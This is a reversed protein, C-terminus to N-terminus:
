PAETVADDYVALHPAEDEALRADTDHPAVWRRQEAAGVAGACLAALALTLAELRMGM